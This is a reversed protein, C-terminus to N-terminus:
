GTFPFTKTKKVRLRLRYFKDHNNKWTDTNSRSEEIEGNIEEFLEDQTDAKTKTETETVLLGM